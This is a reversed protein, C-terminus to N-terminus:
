LAIPSGCVSLVSMPVSFSSHLGYISFSTDINSGPLVNMMMMMPRGYHLAMPRDLQLGSLVM